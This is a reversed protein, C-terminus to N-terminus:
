KKRMLMFAAAAVVVVAVGAVPILMQPTILSGEKALDKVEFTVMELNEIDDFTWVVRRSEESIPESTDDPVVIEVYEDEDSMGEITLTFVPQEVEGSARGLMKLLVQPTPPELGLGEISFQLEQTDGEIIYDFATSLDAVSFETPLLFEVVLEEEEEDMYGEELVDALFADKWENLQEDLDGEVVVEFETELAMEEKDFSIQLDGSRLGTGSLWESYFAPAAQLMGIYSMSSAASPDIIGQSFDGVIRATLSLTASLEGLESSLLELEEIRVNGESGEIVQAEIEAKFVPFMLVSQEILMKPYSSYWITVTLDIDLASESDGLLEYVVSGDVGFVGPVDVLITSESGSREWHSSIDLELDALEEPAGPGLTVILSGSIDCADEGTQTNVTSLSIGSFPYYAGWPETTWQSSGAVEIEISEDPYVKLTIGGEMEQEQPSYMAAGVVPTALVIAWVILIVVVSRGTVEHKSLNSWLELRGVGKLLNTLTFSRVCSLRVNLFDIQTKGM